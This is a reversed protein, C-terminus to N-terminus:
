QSGTEQRNASSTRRRMRHKKNKDPLAALVVAPFILGLVVTLLMASSYGKARALALCGWLYVIIGGVLCLTILWGAMQYKLRLMVLPTFFGVLGVPIGLLAKRKERTIM